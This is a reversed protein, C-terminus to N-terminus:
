PAMAPMATPMMAFGGPMTPVGGASAAAPKEAKSGGGEGVYFFEIFVQGAEKGKYHITVWDKYSGSKMVPALDVTTSGVLDDSAPDEDYVLIDLTTDKAVTFTLTDNWNPKKGGGEHTKTKSTTSGLVFKIFPDMKSFTDCDRFLRATTPKLILTGKKGDM